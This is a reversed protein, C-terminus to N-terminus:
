RCGHRASPWCRSKAACVKLPSPSATLPGCPFSPRGARRSRQLERLEAVFIFVAIATAKRTITLM